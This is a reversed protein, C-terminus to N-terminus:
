LLVRGYELNALQEAPCVMAVGQGGCHPCPELSTGPAEEGAAGAELGLDQAMAVAQALGAAVAAAALAWVQLISHALTHSVHAAEPTQL